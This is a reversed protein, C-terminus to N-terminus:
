VDSQYAHVATSSSGSVLPPTEYETRTRAVSLKTRAPTAADGQVLRLKEFAAADVYSVAEESGRNFAAALRSTEAPALGKAGAQEVVSM